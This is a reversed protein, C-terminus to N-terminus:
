GIQIDKILTLDDLSNLKVEAESVTYLVNGIYLSRQVYHSYDYINTSNEMHTIAGRYALGNSTINFVYAGQWVPQGYANPPIADPYQSRDVKAVLVPIVLLDKEKDFLFAEHDYLVPSNTGRDGITYNAIQIPDSVNSVDFLSIKVGQYWAFFGEDSPSTEKGVGIIHNEDYPHLYNSYGPIKLQGLVAPKTPDSLDIVFLPDIMVFTVLYCRKEMFRASYIHEGPALDELKGVISMNMDLVYVNNTPSSTLNTYTWTTTAIRFHDNYEDMSFQNLVQGPVQGQAEPIITSNAIHVRYITTGDTGLFTVYVNNLSVYMTSAGGLMITASSPAQAADKINLAYITTFLFYTDSVNAYYVDTPAAEKSYGSAKITPFNVKDVTVNPFVEVSHESPQNTVFYIYDGIMRSDFYGGNTEYSRVLEPQTRNSIDYIKVYTGVDSFYNFSSLIMPSM